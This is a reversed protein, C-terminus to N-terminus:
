LGILMEHVLNQYGDPLNALAIETSVVFGHRYCMDFTVSDEDVHLSHMSALLREAAGAQQV